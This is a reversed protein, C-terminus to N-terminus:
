KCVSVFLQVYKTLQIATSYRHYAATPTLHLVMSVVCRWYWVTRKVTSFVCLVWHCKWIGAGARGDSANWLMWCDLLCKVSENCHNLASFVFFYMIDAFRYLSWLLLRHLHNNVTCYYYMTITPTSSLLRYASEHCMIKYSPWHVTLVTSCENFLSPLSECCSCRSSWVIFM